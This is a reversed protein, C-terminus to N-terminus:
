IPLVIYHSYFLHKLFKYLSTYFNMLMMGVAKVLFINCHGNGSSDGDDNGSDCLNPPVKNFFHIDVGGILADACRNRASNCAQDIRSVRYCIRRMDPVRKEM